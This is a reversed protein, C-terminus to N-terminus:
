PYCNCHGKFCEWDGLSRECCEKSSMGIPCLLHQPVFSQATAMGRAASGFEAYASIYDNGTHGLSAEATFQPFRM